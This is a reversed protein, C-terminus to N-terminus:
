GSRDSIEGNDWTEKQGKGVNEIYQYGSRNGMIFLFFPFDTVHGLIVVRVYVKGSGHNNGEISVGFVM